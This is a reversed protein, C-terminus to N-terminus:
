WLLPSVFHLLFSAVLGSRVPDEPVGFVLPITKTAAKAALAAAPSGTTVIVAVQRRVLEAALAPL